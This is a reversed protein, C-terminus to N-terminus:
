WPIAQEADRNVVGEDEGSSENVSVGVGRVVIFYTMFRGREARTSTTVHMQAMGGTWACSCAETPMGVARMTGRPDIGACSKPEQVPSIAGEIAIMAPPTATWPRLGSSV